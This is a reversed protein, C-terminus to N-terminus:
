QRPDLAVVAARQADGVVLDGDMQVLLTSTICHAGDTRSCSYVTAAGDVAGLVHHIARGHYNGSSALHRPILLTQTNPLRVDEVVCKLISGLVLEAQLLAIKPIQQVHHLTAVDLLMQSVDGLPVLVHNGISWVQDDLHDSFNELFNSM